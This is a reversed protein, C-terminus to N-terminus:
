IMYEIANGRLLNLCKDDYYTAEFFKIIKDIADAPESNGCMFIDLAAFGKEPWTHISIHSEALVIVGTFGYREGFHHWNDMLVTAGLDRAVGLLFASTASMNLLNEQDVKTIIDLILHKGLHM